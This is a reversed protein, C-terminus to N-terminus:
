LCDPFGTSPRALRFAFSCLAAPLSSSATLRILTAPLGPLLSGLALPLIDASRPHYRLQPAHPPAVRQSRIGRMVGIDARMVGIDARVEGLNRELSNLARKGFFGLFFTCLVVIVGLISMGTTLELTM